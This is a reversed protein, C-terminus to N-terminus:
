GVSERLPPSLGNRLDTPLGQAKRVSMYVTMAVAM